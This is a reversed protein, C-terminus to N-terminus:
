ISSHVKLLSISRTPPHGEPLPHVAFLLICKLYLIYELHSYVELPLIPHVELSSISRTLSCKLYSTSRIPSHVKLPLASRTPPHVEFPPYVALSFISRTPSCKSHSVEFPLVHPYVTLPSICKSYSIVQVLYTLFAVGLELYRSRYEIKTPVYTDKGQSKYNSKVARRDARRSQVARLCNSYTRM